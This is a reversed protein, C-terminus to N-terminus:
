ELENAIYIGPTRYLQNSEDSGVAIEFTSLVTDGDLNGIADFSYISTDGATGACTDTSGVIQYQYYIPDSITFGIAAFSNTPGLAQWDVTQKAAGAAGAVANPSSAAVVTCGTSAAASAGRSMVARSGWHEQQYYTASGQFLNRLNAGAEATKSRRVYGVFAPIAIAALIGIIAVVIMLEILTFGARRKTARAILRNM